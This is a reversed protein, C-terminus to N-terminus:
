NKVSSWNVISYFSIALKYKIDKASLNFFMSTIKFLIDDLFLLV